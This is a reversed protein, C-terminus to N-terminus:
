KASALGGNRLNRIQKLTLATCDSIEHESLGNKFMQEVVQAKGREIGQEIGEQRGVATWRIKANQELIELDSAFEEM